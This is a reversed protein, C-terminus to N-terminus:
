SASSSNNKFHIKACNAEFSYEFDLLQSIQRVIELGFGSEGSQDNRNLIEDKVLIVVGSENRQAIVDVKQNADSLRISNQVLNAIVEWLLHEDSILKIDTPHLILFAEKQEAENTFSASIQDFVTQLLFPKKDAITQGAERKAYDLIKSAVGFVTDTITTALAIPEKLKDDKNGNTLASMIYNLAFFPQQLDHGMSRILHKQFENPKELKQTRDKVQNELEEEHLKLVLFANDRDTIAGGIMLGVSGAILLIFQLSIREGEYGLLTAVPPTLLATIAIASAASTVGGRVAFIIPPLVIVYWLSDLNPIITSIDFAIYMTLLITITQFIIVYRTPLIKFPHQVKPNFFRYLLPVLLSPVILAGIGDGITWPLLIEWAVSWPFNGVMVHMSVGSLGGIFAAGLSVIIMKLQDSLNNIPLAIKLVYRLLLGAGAYVAFLRFSHIIPDLYGTHEIGLLLCVFPIVLLLNALLPAIVFRIPVVLAISLTVGAPLFWLSSYTKFFNFVDASKYALLWIVILAAMTVADFRKYQFIQRM